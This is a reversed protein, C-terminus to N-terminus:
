LMKPISFKSKTVPAVKGLCFLMAGAVVHRGKASGSTLALTLHHDPYTVMGILRTLITRGVKDMETRIVWVASWSIATLWATLRTCRPSTSHRSMKLSLPRIYRSACHKCLSFVCVFFCTNTQTSLSPSRSSTCPSPFSTAESSLSLHFVPSLHQAKKSNESKM